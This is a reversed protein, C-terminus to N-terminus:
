LTYDTKIAFNDLQKGEVDVGKPAVVFIGKTVKRIQAEMSYIGGNVFEFIMKKKEPDLGEYDIVVIKKNKIDDLIRTGDEYTIPEHIVLKPKLGSGVSTSMTTDEKGTLINRPESQLEAQEEDDMEILDEDYDTYYPDENVGLLSKLKEKMSAM